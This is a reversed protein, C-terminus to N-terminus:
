ADNVSYPLSEFTLVPGKTDVLHVHHDRAENTDVVALVQTGKNPHMSVNVLEGICQDAGQMYLKTGQTVISDSHVSALFLRQKLKGRYHMRAIIEQGPFCGKNFSLGGLRDMNLAQPLFSESSHEDIWALGSLIDHLQWYQSGIGTFDKLLTTWLQQIQNPFGVIIIRTENGQLPIFILENLTILTSSQQRVRDDIGLTSFHAIDRVIVGIPILQDSHEDISVDSRLIYMNLKVTVRQKLDAPLLLYYKENMSCIIFNAIVRGKPNCWASLQFCNDDLKKIDSTFLNHLFSQADGGSIVIVALYSLDTMISQNFAAVSEDEPRAFNELLGNKISAGNDILFKKWNSNM